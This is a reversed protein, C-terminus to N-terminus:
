SIINKVENGSSKKRVSFATDLAQYAEDMRTHDGIFDETTATSTVKVIETTYAAQAVKIHVTMGRLKSRCWEQMEEPYGRTALKPLDAELTALENTTNDILAHCKRM